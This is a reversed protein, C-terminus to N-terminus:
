GYRYGGPALALVATWGSGGRRSPRMPTRTADWDNFDGVLAVRAARPAVVVFQFERPADAAPPVARAGRGPLAWVVAALGAAMALAGLPSVAFQGPRVLGRWGAVAAGPRRSPDAQAIEEM